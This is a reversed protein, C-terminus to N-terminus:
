EVLAKFSCIAKKGLKNAMMANTAGEISKGGIKSFLTQLTNGLLEPINDEFTKM